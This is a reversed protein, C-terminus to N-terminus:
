TRRILVNVPEGTAPRTTQHDMEFGFMEAFRQLKTDDPHTFVRLEVIESLEDVVRQLSRRVAPSWRTVTCHAFYHDGYAELTFHYAPTRISVPPSAM